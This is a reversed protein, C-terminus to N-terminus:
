KRQNEAQTIKLAKQQKIQNLHVPTANFQQIFSNGYVECLDSGSLSM